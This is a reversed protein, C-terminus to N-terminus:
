FMWRPSSQPFTGKNNNASDLNRKKMISSVTPGFYDPGRYSPIKVSIKRSCSPHVQNNRSNYASKSRGPLSDRESCNWNQVGRVTSLTSQSRRVQPSNKKESRERPSYNRSERTEASYFTEVDSSDTYRQSSAQIWSSVHSMKIEYDDESGNESCAGNAAFGGVQYERSPEVDVIVEIDKPTIASGEEAQKQEEECKLESTLITSIPRRVEVLNRLSGTGQDHEASFNSESCEVNKKQFVEQLTLSKEDKQKNEETHKPKICIIPMPERFQPCIISRDGYKEDQIFINSQTSEPMTRKWIGKMYSSKEKRQKKESLDDLVDKKCAKRYERSPGASEDQVSSINGKAHNKQEVNGLKIPTSPMPDKLKMGLLQHKGKQIETSQMLIVKENMLKHGQPNEQRILCTQASSTEGSEIEVSNSFYHEQHKNKIEIEAVSLNVKQNPNSERYVENLEDVKQLGKLHAVSSPGEADQGEWAIIINKDELYEDENGPGSQDACYFREDNPCEETQLVPTSSGGIDKAPQRKEEHNTLGNQIEMKGEPLRPKDFYLDNPPTYWTLSNNKDVEIERSSGLRDFFANEPRVESSSVEEDEGIQKFIDKLKGSNDSSELSEGNGKNATRLKISNSSSEASRGKQYAKLRAPIRPRDLEEINGKWNQNLWHRIVPVPIGFQKPLDKRWFTTASARKRQSESVLKMPDCIIFALNGHNDFGASGPSWIVGDTSFKILTDTGVTIRGDGVMLDNEQGETVPRGLLYVVSGFDLYPAVSNQLCLPQVVEIETPDCAVITLDLVSNTVFFRDPALKRRYVQSDSSAMRTVLIESDEAATISPLTGYTTLVLARHILIGTGTSNISVVAGKNSLVGGRIKESGGTGDCAHGCFCWESRFFGM